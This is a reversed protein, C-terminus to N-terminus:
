AELARRYPWSLEDWADVGHVQVWLRAGLLKAVIVALPTMFIHGCFVIHVPERGLAAWLAAASYAFRGSVPALQRFASPLADPRAFGPRPLVAVDGVGECRALSSLFDRNYQAIGGHGGFADTVLALVRLSLQSM